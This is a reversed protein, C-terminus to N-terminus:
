QATGPQIIMLVNLLALTAPGPKCPIPFEIDFSTTHSLTRHSILDQLYKDTSRFNFIEIEQSKFM